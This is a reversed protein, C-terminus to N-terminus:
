DYKKECGEKCDKAIQIIEKSQQFTFDLFSSGGDCMNTKAQKQHACQNGITLLLDNGFVSCLYVDVKLAVVIGVIFIHHQYLVICNEHSGIKDAILVPPNLFLVNVVIYVI